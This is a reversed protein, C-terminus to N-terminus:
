YSYIVDMVNLFINLVSGNTLNLFLHVHDIIVPTSVYFQCSFVQHRVMTSHMCIIGVFLTGISLICTERYSSYCACMEVPYHSTCILLLSQTVPLLRTNLTAIYPIQISM